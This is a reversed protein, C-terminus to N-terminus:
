QLSNAIDLMQQETLVGGVGHVVGDRQWLIGSVKMTTDTIILAPAGNLTTERWIAKDVPIPLPLTTTWDDIARLQAVTDEPM